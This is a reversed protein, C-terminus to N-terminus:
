GQDDKYPCFEEGKDFCVRCGKCTGLNYDSLRVLECEINDLAHLNQLFKDCANYSHRKRGSGIFATVKM